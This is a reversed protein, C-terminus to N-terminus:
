DLGGGGRVGWGVCVGWVRARVGWAGLSGEIVVDRMARGVSRWDNDPGKIRAVVADPEEAVGRDELHKM